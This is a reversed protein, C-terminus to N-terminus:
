AALHRAADLLHRADATRDTAAVTEGDDEHVALDLDVLKPVHKHVLSVRISQVTEEDPTAEGDAAELDAIRRALSPITVSGDAAALATVARQRRRAALADFLAETNPSRSSRHFPQSAISM